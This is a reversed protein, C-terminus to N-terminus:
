KLQKKGSLAKSDEIKEFKQKKSTALLEKGFQDPYYKVQGRTHIGFPEVIVGDSPGMYKILM